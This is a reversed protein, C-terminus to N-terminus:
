DKNFKVIFINKLEESRQYEINAKHLIFIRKVITLGLGFGKKQQANEGRIFPNFLTSIETDNLTNGSNSFLITLLDNEASITVDLSKDNSYYYANKILNNFAILLLRSECNVELDEENDPLNNYNISAKFDQHHIKFQEIAKYLLEDIRTKSFENKFHENDFKALILMADLLDALQKQAILLSKLSRKFEESNTNTRLAKETEAVLSAIPTKLEHSAHHVFNKQFSFSQELRNLMTNFYRALEAIEDKSNPAEIRQNLNNETIKQVQKKFDEIPKLSREVNFYTIVWTIFLGSILVIILISKLYNLKRKGYIDNAAAFIVYPGSADRLEVGYLEDDKLKTYIEKQKRVNNLLLATYEITNEEISSYIIRNISDFILIKEGNLPSISNQDIKRLLERDIEKVDLLLKYTTMAKSKLREKFEEVRFDSYSIYIVAFSLSLLITFVLSYQITFRIKLTM